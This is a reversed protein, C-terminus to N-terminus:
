LVRRCELARLRARRGDRGGREGRLPHRQGRGGGPRRRWITRRAGGARCAGGGRPRHPGGRRSRGRAWIAAPRVPPDPALWRLLRVQLHLAARRGGARSPARRRPGARLHRLSAEERVLQGRAVDARRAPARAPAAERCPRRAVRPEAQPRRPRTGLRERLAQLQDNTARRKRKAM